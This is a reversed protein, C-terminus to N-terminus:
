KKDLFPKIIEIPLPFVVVTKGENTIESLAQLYALQLANESGSITKSAEALRSARQVEGDASIVKARREREAEAEQAMARQMERPLDIHKLEVSAIKVGWGETDQDLLAQLKSNVSERQSLIEDLAFQGLISRLTTQALQSVAYYYDAVQVIAKEADVIRFYVVANVKISVNDKTIVDQPQVDMTVTRMDIRVMKELFPILVILGPGRVGVSRGLRFVVGREYEQLIKLTSSIISVAVFAAIILGIEM